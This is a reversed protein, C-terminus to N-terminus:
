KEDKELNQKSEDMIEPQSSILADKSHFPGDKSHRSRGIKRRRREPDHGINEYRRGQNIDALVDGIRLWAERSEGIREMLALVKKQDETLSSNKLKASPIDAHGYQEDNSHKIGSGDLVWQASLGLAEAAAFFNAPKQTKSDGSEWQAVAARSIKAKKIKGIEDALRQQSWQRAVREEKIRDGPTKMYTLKCSFLSLM